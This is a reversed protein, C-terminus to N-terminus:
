EEDPISWIIEEAKVWQPTEEDDPWVSYYHNDTSGFYTKMAVFGGDSYMIISGVKYKHRM